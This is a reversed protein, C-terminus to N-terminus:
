PAVGGLANFTNKIGDPTEVLRAQWYPSFLSGAEYRQDQNGRIFRRFMAGDKFEHPRNFYVQASALAKIQNNRSGDPMDLRGRGMGNIADTTRAERSAVQVEVSFIPGDNSNQAKGQKVDHFKHAIGRTYNRFYADKRQDGVLSGGPDGEALLSTWQTPNVGNYAPLQRRQYDSYWGRGNGMGPFFRENTGWSNPLAQAGAWGVPLNIRLVWLNVVFNNTDVASWRQYDMMDTGGNARFGFIGFVMADDKRGVTFRDRSEMVLNRYRDGGQSRAGKGRPVNFETLWESKANQLQRILNVYSLPSIGAQPANKEVVDRATLIADASAAFNISASATKAYGSNLMDLGGIAPNSVRRIGKRAPRMFNRDAIRAVRALARFAVGIYPIASLINSYTEVMNTSVNIQTVWSNLSVLQAVAVENAIRGRNMYAATNWARAQEVAVSYAAADAANTLEVKKNVVQGTNFVVFVGVCLVILFVLVLPIAQGQQRCSRTTNKIM